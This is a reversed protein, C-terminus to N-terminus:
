YNKRNYILSAIKVLIMVSLAIILYSNINHGLAQYLILLLLTGSGALFAARDSRTQIFQEREDKPKERWILAAFLTFAIFLGLEIMMLTNATMFLGFPELLAFLLIVIIVSIVIEQIFKNKEM